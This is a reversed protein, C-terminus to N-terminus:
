DLFARKTNVKRTTIQKTVLLHFWSDLDYLLYVWYGYKGNFQVHGEEDKEGGATKGYYTNLARM